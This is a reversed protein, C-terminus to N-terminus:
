SSLERSLKQMNGLIAMLLLRAPEKEEAEGPMFILAFTTISERKM